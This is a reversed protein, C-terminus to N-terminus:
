FNIDTEFTQTTKFVRNFFTVINTPSNAEFMNESIFSSKIDSNVSLDFEDLPITSTLKIVFNGSADDANKM